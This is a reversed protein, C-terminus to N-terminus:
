EEEEGAGDIERLRDFHAVAPDGAKGKMRIERDKGCIPLFDCYDCHGEPRVSGSPRAFFIGSDIGHGVVALMEPLRAVAAHLEGDDYTCCVVAGDRPQLHLYEAEVRQVAALDAMGELAARYVAPQIKEGAMLLTRKGPAMSKPLMGTKYDIIRARRGDPSVDIRDIRGRFEVARDRSGIRCAPTESAGGFSGFSRELCRPQLEAREGDKEFELWNRLMFLLRDREIEWILDSMGAPRREELLRRATTSLAESLSPLPVAFCEGGHGRLFDELICHVIEGRLLPDMGEVQEEEEWIELEQVRRLFFLYPCKAYEEIRSASLQATDTVLKRSAFTQLLPHTIRGDFETLKPTWRARDYARPGNMLLPEAVSIAELAARASGPNAAILGLRIEGKDIARQGKGPGPDDLSVTRLGLVLEPTLENLHLSKGCAAAAARLFFQSPIRERDSAEDLRSTMLVLRKEASRVAMDFLLREEEGRLSKFPLRPPHGLQAREADLLLPDQRLRAPFRGEDLGPIVVLPFRLGRAAAASLLNVGRRQFRGEPYALGDLTEFLASTFRARPIRRKQLVDLSIAGLSGLDAMAAAFAPWDESRGLIPALRDRILATWEQWSCAAPWGAAARRLATWGNRLALAADLRQKAGPLSLPPHTDDEADEEGGKDIREQAQRLDAGTGRVLADTGSTWSEVGALFRADHVLARWQSAEWEQAPGPPLAAAILEMAKLIARRSFSETELAAIALVARALPRQRFASGGHVFYPIGRLRFAETLIPVQEEPNRLIVAAEHFGGIVADRVTRCVERVIEVAMRSEGPASVLAVAGDADLPVVGAADTKLDPAACLRQTLLDLSGGSGKRDLALSAVRLEKERSAVFPAAFSSATANVYPIFYVLDLEDKLHSLLEAQIGTVDYIGYILMFPSGLRCRLASVAATARQYDFAADRFSAAHALFLRYLRSLGTLHERRDRTLGKLAPLSKDLLDPTIGADRLDRFTELLAARFGPFGAVRAFVAPAAEELIDSMLVSAAPRSLHPKAHAAESGPSLSEVLSTFTHFCVNAAARGREAIRIKLYAALINSGVLVVVPALPDQKQRDVISDLLKAELAEFTGTFIRHAMEIQDPKQRKPVDL